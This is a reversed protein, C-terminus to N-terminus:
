VTVTISADHNNMCVNKDEYQISLKKLKKLLKPKAKASEFTNKAELFVINQQRRNPYLIMGDIECLEDKENYVVISSPITLTTDSKTDKSLVIKMFEVEHIQDATAETGKLIRDIAKIRQNKGKNCIVCTKNVTVMSCANLPTVALIVVGLVAFEYLVIVIGAFIISLSLIM